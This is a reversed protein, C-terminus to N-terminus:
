RGSRGPLTPPSPLPSGNPTDCRYALYAASFYELFTRHTFSYLTEGTATTGADSLVWLRGRCFEVFEAAAERADAQSEFGRGYLFATTENVLEHETVAPQVQNPYVAVM